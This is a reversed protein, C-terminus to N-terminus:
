LNAHDFYIRGSIAKDSPVISLKLTWYGTM